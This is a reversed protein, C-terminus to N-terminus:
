AIRVAWGSGLVRFIMPFIFFFFWWSIFLSSLHPWDFLFISPVREVWQRSDDTFEFAPDHLLESKLLSYVELFKSRFESMKRHSFPPSFFLTLSSDTPSTHFNNPPLKIRLSPSLNHAIAWTWCNKEKYRKYTYMYIKKRATAAVTNQSQIIWLPIFYSHHM